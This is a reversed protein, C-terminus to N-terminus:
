QKASSLTLFFFAFLCIPLYSFFSSVHHHYHYWNYNTCKSRDECAQFFSQLIQFDSSSNLSDLSCCQQSWGSYQPCVFNNYIPAHTYFFQSISYDLLSSNILYIPQNTPQTKHCILRQLNNLGLDSHKGMVRSVLTWNWTSDYWLSLFHYKIGGQKVSQM